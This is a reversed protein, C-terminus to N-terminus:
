LVATFNHHRIFLELRLKLAGALAEGPLIKEIASKPLSKTFEINQAIKNPAVEVAV